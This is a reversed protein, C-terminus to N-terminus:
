TPSSAPTPEYLVAPTIPENTTVPLVSRKWSLWTIADLMFFTDNALTSVPLLSSPWSVNPKIASRVFACTLTLDGAKLKTGSTFPVDSFSPSKSTFNTQDSREIMM